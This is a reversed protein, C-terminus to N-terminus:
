VRAKLLGSVAARFAEVARRDAEGPKPKYPRRKWGGRALRPLADAVAETLGTSTFIEVEDARGYKAISAITAIVHKVAKEAYESRPSKVDDNRMRKFRLGHKLNKPCSTGCNKCAVCMWLSKENLYVRERGLADRPDYAFRYVKVLAHPGAFEENVKAVPCVSYCVGCWVCQASSWLDMQVAPLMPYWKDSKLVEEKPVLYPKVSFMRREFDSRDVILDRVVPMNDLPEVVITGNGEEAAELANTLCALAPRGNIKVACNGCVGMKCLPRYALTPDKEERVRQLAVAVSTYKDVEVEYEQWWSAKTAPDYRAVKFKVKPM